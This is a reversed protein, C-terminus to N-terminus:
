NGKPQKVAIKITLTGETIRHLRDSQHEMKAKLGNERAGESGQVEPIVKETIAPRKAALIQSNLGMKNEELIRTMESDLEENIVRVTEVTLDSNGRSYSSLLSRFEEGLSNTNEQLGASEKIMKLSTELVMRM